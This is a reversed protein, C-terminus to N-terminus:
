EFTVVPAVRNAVVNTASLLQTSEAVGGDSAKVPTGDGDSAGMTTAGVGLTVGDLVGDGLKLEELESLAVALEVCVLVADLVSVDELVSVCVAVCVVVPESVVVRVLGGVGLMVPECVGVTVLELVILEVNDADCVSVDVAVEDGVGVAVAVGM